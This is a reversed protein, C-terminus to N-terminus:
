FGDLGCSALMKSFSAAMVRAREVDGESLAQNLESVLERL